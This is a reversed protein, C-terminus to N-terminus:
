GPLYKVDEKAEPNYKVLENNKIYRKIEAIQKDQYEYKALSVKANAATSICNIISVLEATPITDEKDENIRKALRTIVKRLLKGEYNNDNWAHRTM